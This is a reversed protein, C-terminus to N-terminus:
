SDDVFLIRALDSVVRTPLSPELMRSFSIGMGLSVLVTAVERPPLPLRLGFREAEAEVLSGTYDIIMRERDALQEQIQPRDRTTSAFEMILVGWVEHGVMEEWWSTFAQVRGEVTEPAALLGAQLHELRHAFHRDLVALVLEEKGAFNSYVAGKSYGAREAIRELSTARYGGEVLVESAVELLRERTEAQSERRSRPSTM